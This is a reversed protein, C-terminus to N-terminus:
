KRIKKGHDSVLIEDVFRIHQPVKFAPLRSGLTSRITEATLGAAVVDAVLLAGMLPNRRAYVACDRVGPVESLAAEVEEPMVKMGGINILGDERGAFYCRDGRVDIRDKTRLWGDVVVDQQDTGVYHKMARTSRVELMGDRVRLGVKGSEDLFSTPFGERGDSVVIATGTETSAYIHTLHEPDFAERVLDIIPQSVLEGGLTAQILKPRALKPPWGNILIRWWTPTGSIADVDNESILRAHEHHKGADPMVLKGGSGAASFFVQLGAYSGPEYALFWTAGMLREPVFKSSASITEWRHQVLKPIGTSGSTFIIVGSELPVSAPREYEELLLEAGDWDRVVLTVGWQELHPALEEASRASPAVFLLQDLDRCLTLAIVFAVRSGAFVLVRQHRAFTKKNRECVDALDQAPLWQGAAFLDSTM